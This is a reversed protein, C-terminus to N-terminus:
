NLIKFLKLPTDCSQKIQFELKKYLGIMLNLEEFINERKTKGNM